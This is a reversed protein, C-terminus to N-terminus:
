NTNQKLSQDRHFLWKFNRSLNNAGGAIARPKLLDFLWRLRTTFDKRWFARFTEAFASYLFGGCRSDFAFHRGVAIPLSRFHDVCAILADITGLANAGLLACVLCNFLRVLLESSQASARFRTM